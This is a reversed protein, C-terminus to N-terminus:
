EDNDPAVFSANEGPQLVLLIEGDRELLAFTSTLGDSGPLTYTVSSPSAFFPVEDDDAAASGALPVAIIAAVLAGAAMLMLNKTTNKLTLTRM